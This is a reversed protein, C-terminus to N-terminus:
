CVLHRLSQLESTHEESRAEFDEGNLVAERRLEYRDFNNEDSALARGVREYLAADETRDLISIVQQQRLGRALALPALTLGFMLLPSLATWLIFSTSRVRTLYERKIIAKLKDM